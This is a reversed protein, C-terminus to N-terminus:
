FELEISAGPSVASWQAFLKGRLERVQTLDEETLLRPVRRESTAAHIAAFENFEEATWLAGSARERDFCGALYEVEAADDPLSGKASKGETDAVDWGESILGFFGRRYGLVTEVAFHTLDHLAFFPAHRSEQKQWTESGDARICRLVGGGDKRKTIRIILV